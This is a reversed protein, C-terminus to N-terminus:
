VAAVDVSVSTPNTLLAIERGRVPTDPGPLDHM